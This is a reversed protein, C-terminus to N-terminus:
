PQHTTLCCVFLCVFERSHTTSTTASTSAKAKKRHTTALPEQSHTTSITKPETRDELENPKEPSERSHTTSTTASTSAKAKKRHTTALPEQSHTTSSTKALLKTYAYLVKAADVSNKTPEQSHTNRETIDENSAGPEETSDELENPKEPSERSHTTSTTPETSDVLENPKEPSERSHTTSTTASTSAKAKKRHTTALPEQSHTTSSTKSKTNDQFLEPVNWFKQKTKHQSSTATVSFTGDNNVAKLIVALLKGQWKALYLDPKDLELIDDNDIRVHKFANVEISPLEDAPEEYDHPVPKGGSGPKCHGDKFWITSATHLRRDESQLVFVADPNDKRLTVMKALINHGTTKDRIHYLLPETRDELENPKEPSERSHTTSTIASTSAKAKKRHTTAEISPLEDAPEEYDRPVPKGGSGPKCHGGKFWITSATHLRGDESQLVFVADPNDKRLTVM